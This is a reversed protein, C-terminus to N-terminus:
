TLGGSHKGGSKLEGLQLSQAPLMKQPQEGPLGTGGELCVAQIMGPSWVGQFMSKLDEICAGAKDAGLRLPSLCVDKAEGTVVVTGGM